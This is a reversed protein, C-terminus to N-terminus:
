PRGPRTFDMDSPKDKPVYIKMFYVGKRRIFKSIAESKVDVIAGDNKRFLLDSGEEGNEALEVVAMIPMDVDADEFTQVIPNGESSMAKIKFCGRSKLEEGNATSMRVSSPELKTQTNPFHERRRACSRAAGSDVLAWVAEYDADSHLDLDPLSIKGERVQRAIGAITLKDLPKPPLLKKNQKQSIKPGIKVRSAFQNLANVMQNEDDDTDDFRKDELLENFSNHHECNTVKCPTCDSRSSIARLPVSWLPQLSATEEFEEDEYGEPYDETLASVPKPQKDKWKRFASKFDTPMAGGNKAMLNKKVPCTAVRHDESGCILCKNGFKAYLSPGRAPAAPAGPRPRAKPRAMAAAITDMKDSLLNVIKSLTEEHKPVEHVAEDGYETLPSLRQSHSLSQKLRESHLKSLKLDNLRGLDSIVHNICKQLTDLGIKDRVQQQVHPPLINVFMSKLHADSIGAGYLDKMEQWKGIWLQLNEPKDCPPFSHLNGMGGLEVQDAGGEHKIFLARWLELGNNNGGSLIGRNVYITDVLHKGIFTWLSNAVWKFDIDFTYGEGTLYNLVLSEKGIPEKQREIEAFVYSWDLNKETFHDKVRQAWTRYMGDTGNFPKLEKSIKMDAVGWMKPDWARRGLHSQPAMPPPRASNQGAAQAWPDFVPTSSTTEQQPPGSLPSGLNFHEVKPATPGGFSPPVPPVQSAPQPTTPNMRDREIRQFSESISNGMNNLLKVFYEQREESNHIREPLTKELQGFRGEVENVFSKMSDVKKNIGDNTDVIVQQVHKLAKELEQIKKEAGLM